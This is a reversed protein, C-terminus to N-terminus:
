QGYTRPPIYSHAIPSHAMPRHSLTSLAVAWLLATCNAALVQFPKPVLKANALLAPAIALWHVGIAPLLEQRAKFWPQPHAECYATLAVFSFTVSPVFLIEHLALRQAITFVHQYALRRQQLVAFWRQLLAGDLSAGLGIATVLRQKDINDRSELILQTTCDGTGTIVAAVPVPPALRCVGRGHLLRSFYIRTQWITSM